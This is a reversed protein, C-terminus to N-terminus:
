HRHHCHVVPHRRSPLPPQTNPTHTSPRPDSSPTAGTDLCYSSCPRPNRSPQPPPVASSM